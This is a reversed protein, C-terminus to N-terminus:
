RSVISKFEKPIDEYVTANAYLFDDLKIIDEFTIDELNETEIIEYEELEKVALNINFKHRFNSEGNDKLVTTHIWDGQKIISLSYNRDTYVGYVGIIYPNNEKMKIFLLNKNEKM